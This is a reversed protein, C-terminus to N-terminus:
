KKMNNWRELNQRFSMILNHSNMIKLEPNFLANLAANDDNQMNNYYYTRWFYAVIQERDEIITMKMLKDFIVEEKDEGASEAFEQFVQVCILRTGADLLNSQLYTVDSVRYIVEDNWVGVYSITPNESDKILLYLNNVSKINFEFCHEKGSKDVISSLESKNTSIVKENFFIERGDTLSISKKSLDIRVLEAEMQLDVGSDRVKKVIKDIFGFSGTRPYHFKGRTFFDRLFLMCINKFVRNKQLSVLSPPNGLLVFFNILYYPYYKGKRYVKPQRKLPRIDLDFTDNLLKFSKKHRYWIHCGIEIKDAFGDQSFSQWSGGAVSQKELILVSKGQQSRFFAEILMLPSTGVVVIDYSDKDIM